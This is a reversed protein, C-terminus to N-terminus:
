AVMYQEYPVMVGDQLLHRFRPFPLRWARDLMPGLAAYTHGCTLTLISTAGLTPDAMSVHERNAPHFATQGALNPPCYYCPFIPSAPAESGDVDFQHLDVILSPSPRHATM